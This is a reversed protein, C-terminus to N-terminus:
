TGNREACGGGYYEHQFQATYYNDITAPANFLVTLLYRKINRVPTTNAKLSNMVYEIHQSNIKLLREKVLSAPLSDGAVSITPRSSCLTEVMLDVIEDLQEINTEYGESLEFYDINNRVQSQFKKVMDTLDSRDSGDRQDSPHSLPISPYISTISPKKSEPYTKSEKTNLQTPNGLTPKDLTPNELTPNDLIPNEWMPTKWVATETNTPQEHRKSVNDSLSKAHKPREKEASDMVPNEQTTSELVPSDSVSQPHEYIVYETGSLQGKDNRSRARVIYGAEELERIAQRIADVGEKSIAALGRLTYDWEDPLSLMISLLGKAKLSLMRNKLHHNSMVTYDRTREVRFVAM